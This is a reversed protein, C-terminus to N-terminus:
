LNVSRGDIVELILPSAVPPEDSIEIAHSTLRRAHALREDDNFAFIFVPDGARVATGVPAAIEIGVGPDVPSDVRDRGAGLAVAARGVMEAHIQSVFGARPAV